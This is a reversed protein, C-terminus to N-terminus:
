LGSLYLKGSDINTECLERRLRRWLHFTVCAGNFYSTNGNGSILVSSSNKILEGRLSMPIKYATMWTQWSLAHHESVRWLISLTIYLNLDDAYARTHIFHQIHIHTFHQTHMTGRPSGHWHTCKHAPKHRATSHTHAPKHWTHTPTTHIHTTKHAHTLHQTHTHPWHTHMHHATDTYANTDHQTHAPKHWTHTLTHLTTHTLHQTHTHLHTHTLSFSLPPSLSPM